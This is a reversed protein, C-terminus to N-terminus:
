CGFTVADSAWTWPMVSQMSRYISGASLYRWWNVAHVILHWEKGERKMSNTQKRRKGRRNGPPQCVFLCLFVGVSSTSIKHTSVLAHGSLGLSSSSPGFVPWTKSNGKMVLYSAPYGCVGRSDPQWVATWEINNNITIQPFRKPVQPQRRVKGHSM